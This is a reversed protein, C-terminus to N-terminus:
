LFCRLNSKTNRCGLTISLEVGAYSNLYFSTSVSWKPCSWHLHMHKLRQMADANPCFILFILHFSFDSSIVFCHVTPSPCMHWFTLYSLQSWLISALYTFLLISLHYIPLYISSQNISLYISSQNISLYYISIIYILSLHYFIFLHHCVSLCTSLCSLNETTKNTSMSSVSLTKTPQAQHHIWYHYCSPLCLCSSERLKLKM